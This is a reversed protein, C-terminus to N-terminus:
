PTIKKWDASSATAVAIYADGGTFALQGVFIPTDAISTLDGLEDTTQCANVRRSLDLFYRWLARTLDATWSSLSAGTVSYPPKPIAPPNAVKLV